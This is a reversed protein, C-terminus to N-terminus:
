FDRKPDRADDMAIVAIQGEKDSGSRGFAVATILDFRVTQVFRLTGVEDQQM